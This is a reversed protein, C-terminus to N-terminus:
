CRLLFRDRRDLGLRDRASGKLPSQLLQFGLDRLDALLKLRQGVLISLQAHGFTRDRTVLRLGLSWPHLGVALLEVRAPKSRCDCLPRREVPSNCAARDLRHM